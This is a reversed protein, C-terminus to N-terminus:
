QLCNFQGELLFFVLGDPSTVSLQYFANQFPFVLCDEAPIALTITGAEGGLIIVGGSDNASSLTYLVNDPPPFYPPPPPYGPSPPTAIEPSRLVQMLASYGTLDIPVASAPPLPPNFWTFTVGVSAGRKINMDLDSPGIYIAKAM